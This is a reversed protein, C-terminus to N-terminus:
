SGFIHDQRVIVKDGLKYEPACLLHIPTHDVPAADENPLQPQLPKNPAQIQAKLDALLADM